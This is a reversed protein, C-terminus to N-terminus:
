KKTEGEDDIEKEKTKFTKRFADILASCIIFALCGALTIAIASVGFLIVVGLIVLLNLFLDFIM